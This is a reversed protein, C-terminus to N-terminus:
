SWQYLKEGDLPLSIRENSGEKHDKQSAAQAIEELSGTGRPVILDVWFTSSWSIGLMLALARSSKDTFLLAARDNREYLFRLIPRDAGDKDWYTSTAGSRYQHLFRRSVSFGFNILSCSRIFVTRPNNCPVTRHGPTHGPSHLSPQM